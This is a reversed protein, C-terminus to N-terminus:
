VGTSSRKIILCLEIVISITVVRDKVRICVPVIKDHLRKRSLVLITYADVSTRVLDSIEYLEVTLVLVTDVM